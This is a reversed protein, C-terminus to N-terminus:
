EGEEPAAYLKRYHSPEPESDADDTWFWGGESHEFTMWANYYRGNEYALVQNDFNISKMLELPMENPVKQWGDAKLDEGAQVLGKMLQRTFILERALRGADDARRKAWKELLEDTMPDIKHENEM